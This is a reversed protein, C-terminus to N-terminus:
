ADSLCSPICYDNDDASPTVLFKNIFMKQIWFSLFLNEPGSFFFLNIDVRLHTWRHERADQLRGARILPTLFVPQGVHEEAYHPPDPFLFM